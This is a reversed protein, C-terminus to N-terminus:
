KLMVPLRDEENYAPIILSFWLDNEINKTKYEEYSYSLGKYFINLDKTGKSSKRQNVWLKYPAFIFKILFFFAVAIL